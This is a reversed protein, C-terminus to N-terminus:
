NTKYTHFTGLIIASANNRTREIMDTVDEGYQGDEGIIDAKEVSILQWGFSQLYKEIKEVASKEAGAWTTINM